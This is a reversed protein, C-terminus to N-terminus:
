EEPKILPLHAKYKGDVLEFNPTEPSLYRYRERLNQLGIGTSEVGSTRQQVNNEVVIGTGNSRLELILPHETSIINHKIANGVMEQLSLPPLYLNLHEPNISVRYQLGQNFRIKQLNLYREVFALEDKLPVAMENKVDLLYRYVRAFDDVFQEAKEPDTRILSSLVNLSNFMFHPDLQARLNSLNSQLHEKQLRETAILSERWNRFFYIGEIIAVVILTISNSFIINRFILEPTVELILIPTEKLLILILYQALTTYSFILLIEVLIRRAFHTKWPMERNLFGIISACGFFLSSTVLFSYLWNYLFYIPSFNAIEVETFGLYYEISGLIMPGLSILLVAILNKRTFPHKLLAINGPEKM